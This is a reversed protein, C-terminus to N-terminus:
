RRDRLERVNVYTYRGNNQQALKVLFNVSDMRRGSGFEITHISAGVRQNRRRIEALDATNLVPRDADTLLYIVDPALHLAAKLAPMHETSGNADIGDIFRHALTKAREDAMVLSTKGGSANFITPQENYFIIHFRHTDDLHALSAKLAAKAANLPLNGFSGMSASRDFVYAFSHGESEVGFISTRAGGGATQRPQTARDTLGRAGGGPTDAGGLGLVDAANPLDVSPKLPSDDLLDSVAQSEAGSATPQPTSSENESEYYEGQEDHHKLVIEGAIEQEQDSAIGRPTIQLTLGLVVLLAAHLVASVLWAPAAFRRAATDEQFPAASKQEASPM